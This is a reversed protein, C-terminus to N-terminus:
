KNQRYRIGRYLSLMSLVSSISLDLCAELITLKTKGSTIYIISLNLWNIWEEFISDSGESNNYAAPNFIISTIFCDFCTCKLNNSMNVFIHFAREAAFSIVSSFSKNSPKILALQFIWDTTPIQEAMLSISSESLCNSCHMLYIVFYSLLFLIQHQM